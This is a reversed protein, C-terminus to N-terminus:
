ANCVLLETDKNYYSYECMAYVAAGYQEMTLKYKKVLEHWDKFFILSIVKYKTDDNM